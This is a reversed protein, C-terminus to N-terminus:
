MKTRIAQYHEYGKRVGQILYDFGGSKGQAERVVSQRTNLEVVYLQLWEGRPTLQITLGEESTVLSFHEPVEIVAKGNILTGTGRIYTGAEGGELTVYVIEKTPDTPHDQVFHKQGGSVFLNGPINVNGSQDVSLLEHDGPHGGHSIRLRGIPRGGAPGNDIHFWAFGDPPFFTIAGASSFDLGSSIRGFVHLQTRPGELGIGVKENQDISM